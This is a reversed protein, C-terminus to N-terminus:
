GSHDHNLIESGGSRRPPQYRDISSGFFEVDTAFESSWVTDFPGLQPLSPFPQLGRRALQSFHMATQFAYASIESIPVALRRTGSAIPFAKETELAIIFFVIFRQEKNQGDDQDSYSRTHRGCHRIDCPSARLTGLSREAM